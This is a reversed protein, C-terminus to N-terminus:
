GKDYVQKILLTWKEVKELLINRWIESNINVLNKFESELRHDAYHSYVSATKHGTARMATQQDIQTSIAKTFNHRLSHFVLNRENRTKEDIGIINLANNFHDSLLKSDLPQM